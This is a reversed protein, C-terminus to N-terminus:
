GGSVEDRGFSGFLAAPLDDHGGHLPVHMVNAFVDDADDQGAIAKFDGVEADHNGAVLDEGCGDFFSGVDDAETSQDSRGQIFHHVDGRFHLASTHLLRQEDTPGGGARCVRGDLDRWMVRTRDHM